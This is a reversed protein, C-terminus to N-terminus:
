PVKNGTDKDAATRDDKKADEFAKDIIMEFAWDLVYNKEVARYCM